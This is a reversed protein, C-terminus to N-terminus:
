RVFYLFSIVVHRTSPCPFVLSTYCFRFLLCLASISPSSVPSFLSPCSSLCFFETLPMSETSSIFSFLATGNRVRSRGSVHCREGQFVDTFLLSPLVNIGGLACLHVDHM